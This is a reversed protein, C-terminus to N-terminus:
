QLIKTITERVPEGGQMLKLMQVCSYHVTSHNKNFSEAITEQKLNTGQWVIFMAYRRAQVIRRARSPGELEKLTVDFYACVKRKITAINKQQNSTM